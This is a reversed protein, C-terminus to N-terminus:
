EGKEIKHLAVPEKFKLSEQMVDAISTGDNIIVGSKNLQTTMPISKYTPFSKAIKFQVQGFRGSKDPPAIAIELKVKTPENHLKSQEQAEEFAQQMQVALNGDQINYFAMKEKTEAL